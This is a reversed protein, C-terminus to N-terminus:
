APAACTVVVCLLMKVSVNAHLKSTVLFSPPSSLAGSTSCTAM